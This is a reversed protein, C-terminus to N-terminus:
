SGSRLLSAVSGHFDKKFAERDFSAGPVGPLSADGRLGVTQPTGPAGAFRRVHNYAEEIGVRRNTSRALTDAYSALYTLDEQSIGKERQLRSATARQEAYFQDAEQRQRAEDAQRQTQFFDVMPRAWTPIEEQQQQQIRKRGNEYHEAATRYFTRYEEDSVLRTIDEKYPDLAQLQQYAQNAFTELQEIEEDTYKRRAIPEAPPATETQAALSPVADSQVEVPQTAALIEEPKPKDAPM